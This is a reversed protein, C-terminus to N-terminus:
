AAHKEVVLPPCPGGSQPGHYAKVWGGAILLCPLGGPRAAPDHGAGTGRADAAPRRGHHFKLWSRLVIVSGKGFDLDGVKGNNSIGHTWPGMLVHPDNRADSSESTARVANVHDLTTKAFIDYWGGVAFIPARIDQRRDRGGRAAWYSDYRPHDVWDRLYQVRYGLVRDWDALPLTRYAKLWGAGDWSPAKVGPPPSAMLSGWGMM